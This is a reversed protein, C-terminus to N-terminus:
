NLLLLDRPETAAAEVRRERGCLAVVAAADQRTRLDALLPLKDQDFRDLDFRSLYQDMWWDFADTGTAARMMAAAEDDDLANLNIFRPDPPQGPATHWAHEPPLVAIEADRGHTVLNWLAHGVDRILGRQWPADAAVPRQLDAEAVPVGGLLALWSRTYERQTEGYLLEHRVWKDILPSRSVDRVDFGVLVGTCYFTALEDFFAPDQVVLDPRARRYEPLRSEHYPVTLCQLAAGIPCVQALEVTALYWYDLGVTAAAETVLHLFVFTELNEARIPAEGLGHKPALARILGYTWAHLYDHVSFLVERLLQDRPNFDRASQTAHALWTATRSKAGYFMRGGFPNFGVLSREIVEEYAWSRDIARPTPVIRPDSFARAVLPIRLLSEPDLKV